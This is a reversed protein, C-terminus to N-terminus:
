LNNRWHDPGRSVHYTWGKADDPNEPREGQFSDRREKAVSKEEIKDEVVKNGTKVCWLNKSM